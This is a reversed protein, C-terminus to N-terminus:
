SSRGRLADPDRLDLIPWRLETAARRLKRDPHVAAPRGVVSLMPLDSYSDSYAFSELLDLDHDRAYEQILRAKTAGAVIPKTVRGTCVGDVVELRNTIIDDIGLQRALPQVLFDLSGSIIVQRLRGQGRRVLDESGYYLNPLLLEDYHAQAAELLDDYFVGVFGAFLMENFASRSFRDVFAFAPIKAVGVATKAIAAPLSPEHRTLFLYSQVLNSRVLTGDMDFFAGASRRKPTRAHAHGKPGAPGGEGDPSRASM